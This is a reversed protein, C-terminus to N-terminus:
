FRRSRGTTGRLGPRCPGGSVANGGGDLIHLLEDEARVVQAALLSSPLGSPFSASSLWDYSNDGEPSM